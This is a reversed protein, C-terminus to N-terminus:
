AKQKLLQPPKFREGLEERLYEKVDLNVDVGTLDVTEIPGMEHNCGLRMTTDIDAPTAVGEQVMRIAELSLMAGLRSSAFGPLDKVTADTKDISNVYKEAFAVTEDATQEARVIEVLQMIHAPNFFHLGVVRHAEEVVSALETVSLSSTNTGFYVDDPAHEEVTEFIDKKVDMKEVAAEIVLDIGRSAETLDTVSEINDITSEMEDPTVKGRDIGQQLNTEIQGTGDEVFEADIDRLIVDNGAMASVQAIGQGDHQCRHSRDENTTDM